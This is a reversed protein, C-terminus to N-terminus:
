QKGFLNSTGTVSLGGTRISNAIYNSAEAIECILHVLSDEVGRKRLHHRLNIQFKTTGHTGM